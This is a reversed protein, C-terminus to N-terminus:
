RLLMDIMSQIKIFQQVVNNPTIKTTSLAANPVKPLALKTNIRALEAIINNTTDYVDSPSINGSPFGSVRVPDLGIKKELNILRYLVKFGEINADIPKKGSIPQVEVDDLRINMKKAIQRLNAEIRLTNRHVFVPSIAGVIGDMLYSSKWLNEYVDSPTKGVPLRGKRAHALGLRSATDEVESIISTVLKFVDAPSIKKSPLIPLTAVPWGKSERFRNVKEYVEIGKAYVHLPTKAIQVGPQRAPVSIKLHERINHINNTLTDVAQFVHSPTKAQAGGSLLSMMLLAMTMLKSKSLSFLFNVNINM